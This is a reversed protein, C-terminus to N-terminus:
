RPLDSQMISQLPRQPQALRNSLSLFKDIYLVGAKDKQRLKMPSQFQKSWFDDNIGFNIATKIQEVVYKDTNLLMDFMKATKETIYKPDFKGKCFEILQGSTESPTYKHEKNIPEKNLPKDISAISQGQKTCHKQLAKDLAKASAKTNKVIAVINSSYQNKSKEILKIFGIAEMAMQSPFGFKDKWGLRNCHEICFFYISTHLPSIKEPNEFCFDFWQRSLEYGNM